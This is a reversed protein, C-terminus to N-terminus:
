KKEIQANRCATKVIVEVTKYHLQEGTDSPFVYKSHVYEATRKYYRAYNWEKMKRRHQLWKWLDVQMPDPIPLSREKNRKGIVRLRKPM